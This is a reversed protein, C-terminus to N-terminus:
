CEAVGLALDITGHKPFFDLTKKMKECFESIHVFIAFDCVTFKVPFPRCEPVADNKLLLVARDAAEPAAPLRSPFNGRM